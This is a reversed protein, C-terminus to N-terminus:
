PTATLKAHALGLLEKFLKRNADLALTSPLWRLVPNLYESLKTPDCAAPIFEIDLGAAKAGARFNGLSRAMHWSSTVLLVRHAGLAKLQPLSYSVNERTTRSWGEYRLAAAPLGLRQLLAVGAKGESNGWADTGGGSYFVLPAHGLTYLQAALLVRDGADTLNPELQWGPANVGLGGGLVLIVDATPLQETAMPQYDAEVVHALQMATWPLSWLWLWILSAAILKRRRLWLGLAMLLLACGLPTLFVTVIKQLQFAEM